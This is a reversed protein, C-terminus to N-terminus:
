PQVNGRSAEQATEQAFQILEFVLPLRGEYCSVLQASELVHALHSLLDTRNIQSPKVAM